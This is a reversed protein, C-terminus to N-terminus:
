VHARGIERRYAYYAPIFATFKACDLVSHISHIIDRPLQPNSGKGLFEPHELLNMEPDTLLRELKATRQDVNGKTKLNFLNEVWKAYHEAEARNWQRHIPWAGGGNISPPNPDEALAIACSVLIVVSLIGKSRLHSYVSNFM